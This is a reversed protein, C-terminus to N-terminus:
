QSERRKKKKYELEKIGYSIGRVYTARLQETRLTPLRNSGWKHDATTSLIESLFFSFRTEVLSNPPNEPAWNHSLFNSAMPCDPLTMQLMTNKKLQSSLM